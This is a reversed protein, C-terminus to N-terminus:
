GWAGVHITEMESLVNARTGPFWAADVLLGGYLRPSGEIAVGPAEVAWVLDRQGPAQHSRVNSEPSGAGSSAETAHPM